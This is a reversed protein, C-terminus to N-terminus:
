NKGCIKIWKYIPKLLAIKCEDPFKSLTISLNCLKKIPSVFATAGDILFRGGIKDIGAAEAPNIEEILKLVVEHSTSQLHFNKNRLNLSSYNARVSDM